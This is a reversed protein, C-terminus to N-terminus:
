INIEPNSHDEAGRSSLAGAFLVVSGATAPDTQDYGSWTHESQNALLGTALSALRGRVGGPHVGRVSPVKVAWRGVLLVTRTIGSRIIQV